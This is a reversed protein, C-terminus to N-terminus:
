WDWFRKWNIPLLILIINLSVGIECFCVVFMLDWLEFIWLVWGFFTDKTGDIAGGTVEFDGDWVEDFFTDRARVLLSSWAISGDIVSTGDEDWSAGWVSDWNILWVTDRVEDWTVGSAITGSITWSTFDAGSVHM